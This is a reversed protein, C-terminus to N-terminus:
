HNGAQVLRLGIVTSEVAGSIYLVIDQLLLLFMIVAIILPSNWTQTPISAGM